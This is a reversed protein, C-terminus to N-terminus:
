QNAYVYCESVCQLVENYDAIMSKNWFMLEHSAIRKLDFLGRNFM